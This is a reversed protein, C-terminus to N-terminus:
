LNYILNTITYGKGFELTLNASLKKLTEKGYDARKKGKLEDEVIIKGINWYTIVMASNVTTRVKKQTESIIDAIQKYLNNKTIKVM